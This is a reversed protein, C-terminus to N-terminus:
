WGGCPVGRTKMVRKCTHAATCARWAREGWNEKKMGLGETLFPM